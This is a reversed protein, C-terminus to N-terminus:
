CTRTPAGNGTTGLAVLAPPLPTGPACRIAHLTPSRDLADAGVPDARLQLHAFIRESPAFHKRRQDAPVMKLSVAGRVNGGIALIRGRDPEVKVVIDCHMRASIGLHGRRDRISRYANRRSSCLLDGPEVAAEGPDRAVFAAASSEADRSRIAQDVYVHHAIARRFQERTGLGAECMVWSIFAASWPDRWRRALGEPGSWRDNQRDVMWSGEPTAAWYGAISSAVRRGETPDVHRWRRWDYQGGNQRTRDLVSFGFFAWEQTALDVIRQRTGALPLSRCAAARIRLDGPSGSVAASPPRADFRDAPLRDFPQQAAAASLASLAATALLNM